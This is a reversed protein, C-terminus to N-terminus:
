PRVEAFFPGREGPPGSPAGGPVQDALAMARDMRRDIWGHVEALSRARGDEYFVPANARAAAPFVEAAPRDPDRHLAKLFTEAGGAGLFHALYLETSGVPGGVTAELHAQNGAAFEAAMVANLRPDFRLDLIQDRTAPDAVTYRGGGTVEISRAAEELGYRAGHTKVMGLWTQDIFQYLGTASSTRARADPDFASEQAAKAMMYGFDVGVSQSARRVAGLVDDAVQYGGIAHVVSM